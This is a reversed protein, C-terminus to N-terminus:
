RRWPHWSPLNVTMRDMGGNPVANPMDNFPNAWNQNPEFPNQGWNQVSDYPNQWTDWNFARSNDAAPTGSVNDFLGENNSLGAPASNSPGGGTNSPRGGTLGEPAKSLGFDRGPSGPSAGLNRM